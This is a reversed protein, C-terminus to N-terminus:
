LEGSSGSTNKLCSVVRRKELWGDLFEGFSYKQEIKWSPLFNRSPVEIEKRRMDCHTM